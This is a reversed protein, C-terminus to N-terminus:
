KALIKSLLPRRGVLRDKLISAVFAIVREAIHHPACSLLLSLFCRSFGLLLSFSLILQLTETSARGPRNGQSNPRDQLILGPASENSSSVGLFSAKM